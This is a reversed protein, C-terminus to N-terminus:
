QNLATQAAFGAYLATVVTSYLNNTQQRLYSTPVYLIDDPQLVPDAIEGKYLKVQDIVIEERKGDVTRLLRMKSRAAINTIGGAQALAQLVTVNHRVVGFGISSTVQGISYAGQIPYIGPKSVEGAIFYVGSPTVSVIDGPWVLTNAAAQTLANPDYDISTPPRDSHHLITIHHSALGTLGGVEGLVYSIPAPAFLPVSKPSLVEGMVRAVLNASSVVEVSVNPDKVMGRAKLSESIAQQFMDPSLGSARITGAYPLHVSGDAAVHLRLASLGVDPFDYMRVDILDGPALGPASLGTDATSPGAVAPEQAAVLATTSFQAAFLASLM